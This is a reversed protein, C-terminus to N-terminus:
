RQTILLSFEVRYGYTNIKKVTFYPNCYAEVSQLVHAEQYCHTDYVLAINISFLVQKARCLKKNIFSLLSNRVDVYQTNSVM